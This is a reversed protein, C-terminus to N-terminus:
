RRAKTMPDMEQREKEEKEEEERAVFSRGLLLARYEKDDLRYSASAGAKPTRLVGAQAQAHFTHFQTPFTHLELNHLTPGVLLRGLLRAQYSASAGSRPTRLM